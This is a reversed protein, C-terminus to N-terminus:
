RLGLMLTTAQGADERTMWSEAAIGPASDIDVHIDLDLELDLAIDVGAAHAGPVGTPGEARLPPMGRRPEDDVRTQLAGLDALAGLLREVERDPLGSVEGIRARSLWSVSISHVARRVRLSSGLRSPEVWRALRFHNM